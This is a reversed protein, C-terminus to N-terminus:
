RALLRSGSRRMLTYIMILSFFMSIASPEPVVIAQFTLPSAGDQFFLAGGTTDVNGYFSGWQLLTGNGLQPGISTQMDWTSFVSDSSSDFLDIGNGPGRSFGVQAYYENVYTRTSSIFDFTGAGSLNIFASDSDIWYLPLTNFPYSTYSQRNVTDGAATITFATNSFATTGIVGTGIGQFTFVIPSGSVRLQTSIAVATVMALGIIRSNKM